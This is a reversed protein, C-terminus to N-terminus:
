GVLETLGTIGFRQAAMRTVAIGIIALVTVKILNEPSLKIVTAGRLRLRGLVAPIRRPMRYGATVNDFAPGSSLEGALAWPARADAAM